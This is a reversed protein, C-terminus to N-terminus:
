DEDTTLDVLIEQLKVNDLYTGSNDGERGVEVFSVTNDGDIGIVEFTHTEMVNTDPTITAIIQGNWVVQVKATHNDSRAAVDVSLQYSEGSKVGKVNQSLTVNDGRGGEGEMDIYREGDTTVRNYGDNVVDLKGSNASYDWDDLTSSRDGWGTSKDSTFDEFSGNIILNEGVAHVDDTAVPADNVPTVNLTVTATDTGGNGDSITYEFTAEGNYDRDPTFTITKNQYDVVFQGNAANTVNTVQLTDGDVDSDNGLLEAFSITIPQDEETTLDPQQIGTVSINDLLAGLSDSAGSGAFSIVTDDSAVDFQGTIRYWGNSDVESIQVDLGDHDTLTGDANVTITVGAVSFTMNSSTNGGNHRPNYDFEVRLSDQGSTDITTSISTNQDADLEALYDGDTAKAILGDHQVELGYTAKWEGLQDGQIVTWRSTSTMGEFSETFLLTENPVNYSDDTAIPGDNTGKITVVASQETVGGLGDIVNYTLTIVESENVGLYNFASPDINLTHGDAAISLGDVLGEVSDQAISLESDADVDRAGKLLNLTTSDADENTQKSLAGQVTPKDNSGTVDVTITHKATDDFSSVTLTEQYTDGQDLKDAKSDDLQYTWEGTDTDFTFNGYLGELKDAGLAAFSEQNADDDSVTLTGSASADGIVNGQGDIGAETVDGDLKDEAVEIVAIDNTGRVIIDVTGTGTGDFSTVDFSLPIEAGEPLQQVADSENDLTFSWNGEEDVTFTGYENSVTVPTVFQEGADVDVISLTGTAVSLDANDEVVEGADDSVTAPDNVPTVGVQVVLTDTGGRGDSVEVTFNDPGNYNENPTYEWSGDPNVVVTGNEPASTQSYVLSDGNSDTASFQGSVPTDEETFIALTDGLDATTSDVFTPSYQRFQQLLTLSQTESLGLSELGETDLQTSAIIARGDRSISGSATLSSGSTGGAATAFEEGLQTPDQGEELAAFIDEIEATIDQNDGDEGVIEVQLPQEAQTDLSGDSKVIVEGPLVQDGENLVKLNGNIDIVVIQGAALNSGNIF